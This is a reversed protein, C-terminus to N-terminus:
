SAAETPYISLVLARVARIISDQKLIERRVDELEAELEAVRQEADAM